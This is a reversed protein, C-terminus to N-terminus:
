DKVLNLNEKLFKIIRNKFESERKEIDEKVWDSKVYTALEQVVAIESEKYEEYWSM